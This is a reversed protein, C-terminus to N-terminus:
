LTPTEAPIDKPNKLSPEDKPSPVDKPSSVDKPSPQEQMSLKELDSGLDILQKQVVKQM